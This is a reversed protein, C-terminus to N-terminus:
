TRVSCRPAQPVSEVTYGPFRPPFLIKTKWPILPERSFRGVDSFDPFCDDSLKPDGHVATTTRSLISSREQSLMRLPLRSLYVVVSVGNDLTQPLFIFFYNNKRHFLRFRRAANGSKPAPLFRGLFREERVDEGVASPSVSSRAGIRPNTFM